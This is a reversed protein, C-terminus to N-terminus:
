ELNKALFDEESPKKPEEVTKVLSDLIDTSAGIAAQMSNAWKSWEPLGGTKFPPKAAFDLRRSITKILDKERADM